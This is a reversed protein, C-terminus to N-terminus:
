RVNDEYILYVTTFYTPQLQTQLWVTLWNHGDLWWLFTLWLKKGTIKRIFIECAINRPLRTEHPGSLLTRPLSLRFSGRRFRDPRDLSSFKASNSVFLNIGAALVSWEGREEVGADAAIIRNSILLRMISSVSDNFNSPADLPHSIM